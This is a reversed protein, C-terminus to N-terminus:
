FGDSATKGIELATRGGENVYAQSEIWAIIKILVRM